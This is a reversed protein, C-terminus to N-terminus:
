IFVEKKDYCELAYWPINRRVDNIITMDQYIKENKLKAIRKKNGENIFKYPILIGEEPEDKFCVIMSDKYSKKCVILPKISEFKDENLVMVKIKM